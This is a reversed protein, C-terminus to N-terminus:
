LNRKRLKIKDQRVTERVALREPSNNWKAKPSAARIARKRKIQAKETSSAHRLVRGQPAPTDAEKLLNLYYTPVEVQKGDHVLFDSPFCDSKFKDFWARGMSQSFLHFEPEVTVLYGKPHLRTYHTGEPDGTIKKIIYGSVYQASQMTVDGLECHGFPWARELQPSRYLQDGHENVRWKYRDAHFDWGFICAHYHPRGGQDGYEGCAYFRIKGALSKRLRKMFKQFVPKSLSFNDPLHEDDYTLTIFSSAEVMAAEHM